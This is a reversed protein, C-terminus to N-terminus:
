RRRRLPRPRPPYLPRKPLYKPRTQIRMRPKGYARGFTRSVRSRIKRKVADAFDSITRSPLYSLKLFDFPTRGAKLRYYAVLRQKIEGETWGIKKLDRIWEQRSQRAARFTKSNFAFDQPTGDPTKADNFASVESFLFGEALLQSKQARTLAGM